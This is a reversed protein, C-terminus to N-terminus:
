KEKTIRWNITKLIDYRYPNGAFHYIYAVMKNSDKPIAGGPFQFNWQVGPDHYKGLISAVAINIPIQDWWQIGPVDTFLYFALDLVEKHHERSVITVGSNFFNNSLYEINVPNPVTKTKLVTRIDRRAININPIHFMMPIHNQQNKIAYYKTPDAFEFVNPADERIITDSDIIFIRDHTCLNFAHLKLVAHHYVIAPDAKTIEIYDCNWRNCADKFSDRTNDSMNDNTNITLLTRSM